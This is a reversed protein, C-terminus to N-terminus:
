TQGLSVSLTGTCRLTIIPHHSIRTMSSAASRGTVAPAPVGASPSRASLPMGLSCAPFSWGAGTSCQRPSVTGHRERPEGWVEAMRDRLAQPLEAFWAAYTEPDVLGLAGGRSVIDEVTTWRFENIARRELITRALEEGSGPVEVSFGEESMRALIRAVSELSDLHAAAGVNAEVSACASSNLIFAVRKERNPKERLRIFARVRSVLTQIREPIPIHWEHEPGEPGEEAVSAVPVMGTMGYMEPLIVSWGLESSGLGDQRELWEQKTSYYLILPHIVPVGLEDFVRPPEGHDHSLASTQLCIIADVGSFYDMIVATSDRTGASTDGTGVSFVAIVDNDGECERILADIAALDGNTWYSRYFLIGITHAHRKKRWEWYEGASPFVCPADPHYVGEWVDPSPEEFHVPLHFVDAGLYRLLNVMNAIGGYSFYASVRAVVAPPQNSAAWLSPDHGFSIVPVGDPLASVLTDWYGEQTPHLIIIDADHLTSICSELNKEDRLRFTVWANLAVEEREAAERLLPLESGWVVATIRM